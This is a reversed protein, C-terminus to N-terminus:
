LGPSGPQIVFNRTSGPTDIQFGICGSSGKQLGLLVILELHGRTRFDPWSSQDPIAAESRLQVNHNAVRATGLVRGVATMPTPELPYKAFVVQAGAKLDKARVLVLGPNHSGVFAVSVWSGWDNTEIIESNGLYVPDEGVVMGIQPDLHPATKPCPESAAFTPYNLARSELSKLENVGVTQPPLNQNRWYRGGLVLGSIVIVVLAAAVLALTGRWHHTWPSRARARMQARTHNDARVFVKVKTELTPAPTSIDDIADHIQARLSM